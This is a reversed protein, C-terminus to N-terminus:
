QYQEEGLLGGAVPLGIGLAALSALLDKENIRAPDFAAFRSRVQNANRPVFITGEDITNKAIVGSSPGTFASQFKNYNEVLKKTDKPNQKAAAIAQDEFQFSGAYKGKADILVVDNGMRLLVPFTAGQSTTQTAFKEAIDKGGFFGAHRGGMELPMTRESSMETVLKPQAGINEVAQFKGNRFGFVEGTRSDYPSMGKYAEIDFGMARARDMPTNNKPLGLGGKGVPKAANRQAIKLAEDQPAAKRIMGMMPLAALGVGKGIPGGLDLLGSVAATGYNGAMGERVAGLGPVFPEALDAFLTRIEAPSLRKKARELKSIKDM